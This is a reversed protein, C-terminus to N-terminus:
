YFYGNTRYLDYRERALATLYMKRLSSIDKNYTEYTGTVLNYKQLKGDIIGDIDYTKSVNVICNYCRTYAQPYYYVENNESIVVTQREFDIANYAGVITYNGDILDTCGPLHVETAGNSNTALIYISDETVAEENKDNTTICYSNFYKSKIPVGQMFVSVSINNLLKDWDNESFIPMEFQYTGGSGANYNAIASSLNTEITRRIVSMRNENFVSGSVLPNNNNNFVFIREQTTNTAFDTIASGSSDIAHTQKINGLNNTLWTSFEYATTYYEAASNSYLNGGSTMRQAYMLSTVEGVQLVKGEDTLKEKKNNAFLFYDNGDKYIKQNNYKTYQYTGKSARGTDDITILQESLIEKQINLGDYTVSQAYGYSDKVINSVLNPNIVYGSKTVYNGNVKGYISISNDLTYNVVFDDDGSVYRCSYYIYPKLGYQYQNSDYNFYKGYIYYGDYMTYVMAPIYEKLTDKDYGSAGLSTGLSNYFTSISAEIDRIKSDSVSSYKNNVTNLQFATIADYTADQLKKSYQTQLYITDIQAQIYEGMVLSVPLIIIIFIIALHQLKM